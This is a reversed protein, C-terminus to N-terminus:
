VITVERPSKSLIEISKEKLLVLDEIRVGYSGEIYTAPEITVVMDAKLNEEKKVTLRPAEHIDLGVGHGLSHPYVPLNAEAIIERAAADVTGGSREGNNLMAVAKRNASLVAAYAAEWEPKPKGVFVTRTMDACYANVRAGFDLLVISGSRLPNNDYAHYHPLASHANFAVIPPFAIGGARIRLYSEIEWAIKAETVGPRLRKLIYSYCQDTIAAALHIHTVEEKTKVIRRTEITNYVPMLKVSYLTEALKKHEAVTLDEADFELSTLRLKEVIRGLQPFIPNDRSILHVTLPLRNTEEEYLPSVFLHMEKPTLLVYAEREDNSVGAFGTLYRINTRNTVFLSTDASM